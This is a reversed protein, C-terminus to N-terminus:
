AAKSSLGVMEMALEHRFDEVFRGEDMDIGILTGEDVPECAVSMVTGIGSNGDPDSEEWFVRDGNRM